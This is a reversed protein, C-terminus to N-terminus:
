SMRKNMWCPNRWCKSHALCLALHQLYLSKLDQGTSTGTPPISMCLLLLSVTFHTYRFCLTSQFRLHFRAHDVMSLHTLSAKLSSAISTKPGLPHTPLALSEQGLSHRLQLRPLCLLAHCPRSSDTQCSPLMPHRNASLLFHSQLPLCTKSSRINVYM